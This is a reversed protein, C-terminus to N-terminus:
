EASMTPARRPALDQEPSRLIGPGQAWREARIRDSGVLEPFGGWGQLQGGERPPQHQGGVESGGWM